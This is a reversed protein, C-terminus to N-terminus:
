VPDTPYRVASFGRNGVQASTITNSLDGINVVIRYPIPNGPIIPDTPLDVWTFTSNFSYAM